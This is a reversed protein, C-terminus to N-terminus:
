ITPEDFKVRSEPTYIEVENCHSIKSYILLKPLVSPVRVVDCHEIEDIYTEFAEANVDSELTLCRIHQFQVRKDAEEFDKLGVTLEDFHELVIKDKKVMYKFSKSSLMPFVEDFDRSVDRMMKSVAEGMTMGSSQIVRSFEDYIRGDVGRITVTKISRDEIVSTERIKRDEDESNFGFTM